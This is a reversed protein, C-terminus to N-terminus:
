YVEQRREGGIWGFSVTPVVAADSASRSVGLHVALKRIRMERIPREGPGAAEDPEPLPPPEAVVVDLQLSAQEGVGPRAELSLRAHGCDSHGSTNGDFIQAHRGIHMANRGKHRPLAVVFHVTSSAGSKAAYVTVQGPGDAVKALPLTAQGIERVGLTGPDVWAERVDLHARQGEPELKELRVARVGVNPHQQAAPTGKVVGHVSPREEFSSPWPQEKARMHWDQAVVFCPPGPETGGVAEKVQQMAARLVSGMGGATHKDAAEETTFLTVYQSGEVGGFMGSSSPPLAPHIGAVTESPPVQEPKDEPIAGVEGVPLEGLDVVEASPSSSISLIASVAVLSWGTRVPGCKSVPWSKSM